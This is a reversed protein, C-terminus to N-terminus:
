NYTLINMLHNGIVIIILFMNIYYGILIDYTMSKYNSKVAIIDCHTRSIINFYNVMITSNPSPIGMLIISPFCLYRYIAVAHM